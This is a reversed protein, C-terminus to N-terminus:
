SDGDGSESLFPKAAERAQEAFEEPVVVSRLEALGLSFTATSVDDPYVAAPIGDARLRGALLRAEEAPLEAIKVPETIQDEPLDRDEDSV